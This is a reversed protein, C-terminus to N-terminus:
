PALQEAHSAPPRCEGPAGLDPGSLHLLNSNNATKIVHLLSFNLAEKKEIFGDIINSRRLIVTLTYECQLKQGSKEGGTDSTGEGVQVIAQEAGGEQFRRANLKSFLISDTLLQGGALFSIM